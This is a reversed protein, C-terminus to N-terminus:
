AAAEELLRELRTATAPPVESTRVYESLASQAEADGSTALVFAYALCQQPFSGFPLGAPTRRRHERYVRPLDSPGGIDDLFLLAEKVVMETVRALDAKLEDRTAFPSASWDRAEAPTSAYDIPWYALDFRAGKASRHWKVEGRSTVHPVFDLSIGWMPCYSMGKLAQLEVVDRIPLRASRVWRRPAVAEFGHLALASGLTTAVAQNFEAIPIQDPWGDIAEPGGQIYKLIRDWYGM